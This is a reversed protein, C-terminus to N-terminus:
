YPCLAYLGIQFDPAANQANTISTVILLNIIKSSTSKHLIAKSTYTRMTKFECKTHLIYELSGWSLSWISEDNEGPNCKHISPSFHFSDLKHCPLKKEYAYKNMICVVCSNRVMGGEGARFFHACVCLYVGIKTCVCV